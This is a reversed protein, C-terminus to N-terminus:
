PERRSVRVDAAGSTQFAEHEERFREERRRHQRLRLRLPRLPLPLVVGM